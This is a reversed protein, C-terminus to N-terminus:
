TGSLELPLLEKGYKAAVLERLVRKESLFAEVAVPNFQESRNNIM